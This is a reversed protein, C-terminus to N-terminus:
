GKAESTVIFKGEAHRWDTYRWWTPIFVFSVTSPGQKAKKEPFRGFYIKEFLEKENEKVLRVEGDIQFSKMVSEDTGIVLSARSKERGFLPESKRYDRSTEFFFMLPDELYAFHVTAGHPSGDLMEVALVGIKQTKLFDLIEQNM